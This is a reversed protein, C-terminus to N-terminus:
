SAAARFAPAAEDGAARTAVPVPSALIADYGLGLGCIIREVTRQSVSTADVEAKAYTRVHIGCITAAMLLSLSRRLRAARLRAAVM